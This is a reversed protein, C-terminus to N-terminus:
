MYQEVEKENLPSVPNGHHDHYKCEYKIDGGEKYWGVIEIMGDAPHEFKAGVSFKPESMALLVIVPMM